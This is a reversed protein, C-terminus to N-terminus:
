KWLVEEYVQQLIGASRDWDYREVVTKRAKRGIGADGADLAELLTRQFSEKDGKQFLYGNEGHSIAETIGGVNSGLVPKEMAMAELLKLPTVTEASITSPRPVVFLDCLQYYDPMESYPVKALFKVNRPYEQALSKLRREEPGSGILVFSIDPSHKVILPIARALASIGNIDDMFGAYLVVKGAIGLTERLENARASHGAGPTFINMDVGNPVVTIKELPVKYFRNIWERLSETLTIVRDSSHCIERNTRKFYPYSILTRPFDSMLRMDINVAHVENIFPKNKIQALKKPALGFELAAHAHAIDFNEELVRNLIMEVRHNLNYLSGLYPIRGIIGRSPNLSIRKVELNPPYKEVGPREEGDPARVYLCVEAPLRTLLNYLRVTSGGFDPFFSHAIHLIRM